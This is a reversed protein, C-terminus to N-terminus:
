SRNKLRLTARVMRGFAREKARAEHRRSEDRRIELAEAERHLKLFGELREQTLEGRAVAARVACGPESRHTCDRFRCAEARDAIDPYALDLSEPEIWLGLERIGPTDILCGAGPVIVLERRSTTHRGKLDSARVVGTALRDKGTLFNALSSKGAGSPGIMVATRGRGILEDDSDLGAGTVVSTAVIRSFPAAEAARALAGEVDECLDAKTLVVVPTAGADYAIAVGREIRRANLGRDLAEAVLVVDVNTAAIQAREAAGPRRRALTGTRPLIARVIQCSDLAVWDGVAAPARESSRDLSGALECRLEGAGAFVTVVGRESRLVRAPSLGQDLYGSFLTQRHENWGLSVLDVTTSRLNATCVVACGNGYTFSPFAL